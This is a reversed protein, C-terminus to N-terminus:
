SIPPSVRLDLSDSFSRVYCLMNTGNLKEFLPRDYLTKIFFHTLFSAQRIMAPVQPDISKQAGGKQSSLPIDSLVFDPVDSLIDMSAVTCKEDRDFSTSDMKNNLNSAEPKKEHNKKSRPNGKFVTAIVDSLVDELIGFAILASEM